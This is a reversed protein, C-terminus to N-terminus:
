RFIESIKASFEGARASLESEASRIEQELRQIEKEMTRRSNERATLMLEDRLVEGRTILEERVKMSEKRAQQLSSEIRTTGEQIDNTLTSLKKEDEAVLAERRDITGGVPRFYIRDMIMMLVWVLVLIVLFSLDLDLMDKKVVYGPTM